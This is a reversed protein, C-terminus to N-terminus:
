LYQSRLVVLFVLLHGRGKGTGFAARVLVVVTSSYYRGTRARVCLCSSHFEPTRRLSDSQLRRRAVLLCENGARRLYRVALFVRIARDRM